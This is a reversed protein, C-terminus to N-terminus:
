LSSKDLKLSAQVLLDSFCLVLYKKKKKRKKEKKNFFSYEVQEPPKTSVM